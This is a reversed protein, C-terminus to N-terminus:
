KRVPKLGKAIAIMTENSLSDLLTNVVWYRADGEGRLVIMHLHAGTYYFDYTRGKLRHTESPKDLVPADAWDSEEIGWYDGAGTAFTLRLAKHHGEVYYLRAPSNRALQSSEEVVHPAMLTYPVRGAREAVLHTSGADDARVDAPEHKPVEASKAPAINGHFTQGVVVTLMTGAPTVARLAPPLPVIDAPALLAALPKAALRAKPKRADYYVKTRFVQAPADARRDPNTVVGYGRGALLSSTLAAAGAVGNGNLVYVSTDKPAPVKTKLKRDLAAATAKEPAEVDPNQFQQLAEQISEPSALVNFASDQGLSNPDLKAQFFHGNPLEYAFMAYSIVTNVNVEKGGGVGVEVNSTIASVIKPLDTIGVDSSIQQKLGKVFAQQRALRYFDSDTHRYRVFQLAKTGNLRQYGPQINIDAYNTDATGVNKNYYRRDVDIWVGHVRDVVQKFGHFDVTILYNIPLGTLEKVTALSGQSQCIAYASNIKGHGQPVPDGGDKGPCYLEVLLDRPFSLLSITNTQPDARVLMMTDSRSPGASEIGMRHDYGVVLAVAAHNAVPVDLQAAAKKVDPTHARVAEVSQHFYLYAGGAGAAAVMVLLLLTGLLIRGIIAMGSRREPEPQRYLTMPLAAPPLKHHGNGNVAAGRGYGRKLTTKM